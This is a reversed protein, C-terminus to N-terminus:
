RFYGLQAANQRRQMTWHSNAFTDYLKERGTRAGNIFDCLFCM